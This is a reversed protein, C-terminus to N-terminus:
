EATEEEHHPQELPLTSSFTCGRGLEGNADIQGNHREVIKRCTALGIGTGEYEMRGHLRQFITFIQDKFENEFGIGNDEVTLLIQESDLGGRDQVEMQFGGATGLGQIAPPAFAFVMAEQIGLFERRLHALIGEVITETADVLTGDLDLLIVDPRKVTVPSHFLFAMSRMTSM